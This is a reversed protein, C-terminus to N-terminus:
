RLKPLRQIKGIDLIKTNEEYLRHRHLYEITSPSEIRTQDEMKGIRSKYANELDTKPMYKGMIGMVQSEMMTDEELFMTEYEIKPVNYVLDMNKQKKSEEVSKMPVTSKIISGGVEKSEVITEKDIIANVADLLDDVEEDDNCIEQVQNLLEVIDKSDPDDFTSESPGLEELLMKPASIDLLPHIVSESWTDDVLHRSDDFLNM